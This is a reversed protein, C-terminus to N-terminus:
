CITKSVCCTVESAVVRALCFMAIAGVLFLVAGSIFLIVIRSGHNWTYQKFNALADDYVVRGEHNVAGAQATEWIAQLKAALMLCCFASLAFLVAVVGMGCDVYRNHIAGSFVVAVCANCMLSLPVMYAANWVGLMYQKRLLNLLPSGTDESEGRLIQVCKERWNNM